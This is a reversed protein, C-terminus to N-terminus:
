SDVKTTNQWSDSKNENIIKIRLYKNILEGSIHYIDKNSWRLFQKILNSYVNVTNRSKGELKLLEEFNLISTSYNM